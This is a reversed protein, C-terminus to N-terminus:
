LGINNGLQHVFRRTLHRLEDESLTKVDCAVGGKAGGLPIGLLASKWTMLMALSAVETETVDPHYRIGGKGPGLVSNHLVRYGIITHISGDDMQVPISVTISRRPLEFYDILGKKFGELYVRARWFQERAIDLHDLSEFGAAEHGADPPAGDTM